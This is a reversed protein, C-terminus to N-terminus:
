TSTLKDFAVATYSANGFYAALTGHDAEKEKAALQTASLAVLQAATYDAWGAAAASAALLACVISKM